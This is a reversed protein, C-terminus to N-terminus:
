LQSFENEPTINIILQSSKAFIIYEKLTGQESRRIRANSGGKRKEYGKATEPNMVIGNKSCFEYLLSKFRDKNYRLQLYKPLNFYDKEIKFKDYLEDLQWERSLNEENYTRGSDSYELLLDNAWEYLPKGLDSQLQREDIHETPPSIKENIFKLYLQICNALLNYAKNWEEDDYDTFLDKGFEMKPNFEEPYKTSKSHYYTSFDCALTRRHTSGDANQFVGNMTIGIKPSQEFAIMFAPRHKPNVRFEGECINFFDQMGVSRHLDNIIVFDTDKTVSEYLHKDKTLDANQGPITVTSLIYSLLKLFISKGTGGQHKGEDVNEGDICVVAWPKSQERHQVLLYGIAFLKNIIRLNTKQLEVETLKLGEKEKEWYFNSTNKIFNLFSFDNDNTQISFKEWPKFSDIFAKANAKDQENSAEYDIIAKLYDESYEVEFLPKIIKASRNQIKSKWIYKPCQSIPQEDIGYQTVKWATNQFFMYQFDIGGAKTDLDIQDLNLLSSEKIKNSNFLADRINENFHNNKLYKHVFDMVEKTPIDDVVNGDIRIFKYGSKDNNSPYTFFGHAMYFNYLRTNHIHYKLKGKEIYESMFKLPVASTTLKKFWTKVISMDAITNGNETSLKAYKKCFDTFDKRKFGREDYGEKLEQPLFITKIEWHTKALENAYRIGSKDIDPLNYVSDALDFLTYVQDKTLTEAESNLWVPFYFPKEYENPTDKSKKNLSFLNLADREGAVKIIYPLKYSITNPDVENSSDDLENDDAIKSAINIKTETIYTQIQQLGYVYNKTKKDHNVYLFRIDGFPQILKQFKGSDFVFIFYEPTSSYKHGSPTIYYEVSSYNYLECIEKTVNPGLFLLEAPTFEKKQIIYQGTTNDTNERIPKPKSFSVSESDGIAFESRFWDLVKPFNKNNDEFKYKKIFNVPDGAVGCGFCKFINKKTSVSFSPTKEDHFPCHGTIKGNKETLSYGAKRIVDAIPLNKALQIISKNDSSM